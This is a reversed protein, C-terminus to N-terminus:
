SWSRVRRLSSRPPASADVRTAIAIRFPASRASASSRTICQAIATGSQGFLEGASSRAAMSPQAYQMTSAVSPGGVAAAAAAATPPGDTADVICYACGEMAARLEAPSSNPCLPVAIAWHMVRLLALALDAGNRMAIAVRTSADAGGLDDNLLTRLQDYTCARTSDFCDYAFVGNGAPLVSGLKMSGCEQALTIAGPGIGQHHRDEKTDVERM